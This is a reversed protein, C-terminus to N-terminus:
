GSEMLSRLLDDSMRHFDEYFCAGYRFVGNEEPLLMEYLRYYLPDLRALQPYVSKCAPLMYQLKGEMACLDYIFQRDAM